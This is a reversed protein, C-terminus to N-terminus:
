VPLRCPLFRFSETYNWCLCVICDFCMKPQIGANTPCAPQFPEIIALAGAQTLRALQALLACVPLATARCPASGDIEGVEEEVGLLGAGNVDPLNRM